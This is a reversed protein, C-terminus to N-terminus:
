QVPLPFMLGGNLWLANLGRPLKLPSKMGVTREYIEGYNGVVAIVQAGWDHAQLGLARSTAWDIGLLRQVVPDESHREAQMNAQTVGSAEAQILTYITWKVIRSWQQDDDRYAVAAPALTLHDPLLTDNGIQKPYQAKLQALRSTYASLADCHRVAMADDMEGEEQFPLANIAIGRAVTRAHLIKENDTGEVVCVKLGALDAISKAPFDRRVLVQQSDYFIAPSFGIHWHWESTADPTVGVSLDVEHKSVGEEAENESAYTKAQVKAQAGLTAVAVAKCIELSLPTLPGHLDTKNWDDPTAVVGCRLAGNARVQELTTAALAPTACFVATLALGLHKLRM